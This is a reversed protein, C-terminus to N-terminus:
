RQTTTALSARRASSRARANPPRARARMRRQRCTVLGPSVSAEEAPPRRTVHTEETSAQRRARSCGRSGNQEVVGRRRRGVASVTRSGRGLLPLTARPRRSRPAQPPAAARERTARQAAHLRHCSRGSGGGSLLQIPEPEHWPAYAEDHRGRERRAVGVRRPSCWSVPSRRAPAPTKARGSHKLRGVAPRPDGDDVASPPPELTQRRPGSRGSSQVWGASSRLHVVFRAPRRIALARCTARRRRVM